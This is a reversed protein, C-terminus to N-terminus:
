WIFTIRFILKLQNLNSEQKWIVNNEQDYYILFSVNGIQKM